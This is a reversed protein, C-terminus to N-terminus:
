STEGTAEHFARPNAFRKCLTGAFELEASKRLEGASVGSDAACQPADVSVVVSWTRELTPPQMPSFQADNIRLASRCLRQGIAQTVRILGIVVSLLLSTRSRITMSKGGVALRRHLLRDVSQRRLRDLRPRRGLTGSTIGILPWLPRGAAQFAPVESRNPQGKSIPPAM